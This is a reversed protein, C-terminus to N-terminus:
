RLSLDSMHSYLARRGKHYTQCTAIYLMGVKIIPRVHPQIFSEAATQNKILYQLAVAAEVKVPLENDATLCNFVQLLIYVICYFVYYM